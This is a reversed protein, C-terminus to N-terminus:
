ESEEDYVALETVASVPSIGKVAHLVYRFADMTDMDLDDEPQEIKEEAM